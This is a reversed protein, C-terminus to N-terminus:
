GSNEKTDVLPPAGGGAGTSGNASAVSEAYAQAAISIRDTIL